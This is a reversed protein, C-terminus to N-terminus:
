EIIERVIGNKITVYSNVRKESNQCSVHITISGDEETWTKSNSCAAPLDSLFEKAQRIDDPNAVSEVKDAQQTNDDNKSNDDPQCANLFLCVLLFSLVKLIKLDLRLKKM